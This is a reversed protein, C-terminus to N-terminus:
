RSRPFFPPTASLQQQDKELAPKTEVTTSTNRFQCLVRRSCGIEYASNCLTVSLSVSRVQNNLDRLLPEGFPVAGLLTQPRFYRHSM